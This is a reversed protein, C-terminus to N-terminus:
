KVGYLAFSSFEAWNAPSSSFIKISTIAATNMWLGSHLGIYGLSNTDNGSLGRVTKYKNTNSYDLIDVITPAFVNSTNGNRSNIGALMATTSSAAGATASSGDGYVRHWSYNSGTDSNCQIWFAGQGTAGDTDRAIARIQLHKYTGAISTFEAYSAGGSGVTVTQISEYDSTFSPAPPAGIGLFGAVQNAIM